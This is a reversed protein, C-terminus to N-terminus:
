AVEQRNPRDLRALVVRKQKLGEVPEGGVVGSEDNDAALAPHSIFRTSGEGPMWVEALADEPQRREVLLGQKGEVAVGIARHKGRM